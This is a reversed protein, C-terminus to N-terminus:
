CPDPSNLVKNLRTSCLGIKGFNADYHVIQVVSRIKKPWGFVIPWGFVLQGFIGTVLNTGSCLLSLELPSGFLLIAGLAQGLFHTWYWHAGGTPPPANM